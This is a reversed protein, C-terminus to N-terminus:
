FETFLGLQSLVKTEVINILKALIKTSCKALQTILVFCTQFGLHSSFNLISYKCTALNTADSNLTMATIMQEHGVIKSILADGSAKM